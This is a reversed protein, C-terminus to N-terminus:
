SVECAYPGQSDENCILILVDDGSTFLSREPGKEMDLLKWGQSLGAAVCTMEPNGVLNGMDREELNSWFQYHEETIKM